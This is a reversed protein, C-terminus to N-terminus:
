QITNTLSHYDVNGLLGRERHAEPPGAYTRICSKKTEGDDLDVEGCPTLWLHFYQWHCYTENTRSDTRTCLNLHRQSIVLTYIPDHNPRPLLPPIESVRFVALSPHRSIKKPPLSNNHILPPNIAMIPTLTALTVLKVLQGSPLSAASIASTSEM